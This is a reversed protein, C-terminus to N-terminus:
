FGRFPLLCTRELAKANDAILKLRDALPGETVELSGEPTATTSGGLLADQQAEATQATTPAVTQIAQIDRLYAERVLPDTSAAKAQLQAVFTRAEAATVSAAAARAFVPAIKQDLVGQLVAADVQYDKEKCTRTGLADKLSRVAAEATTAAGKITVWAAEYDAANELLQQGNTSPNSTTTEIVDETSVGYPSPGSADLYPYRGQGSSGGALGATASSLSASGLIQSAFNVTNMVTGINSLIGNIQASVNGMEVVKDSNLGLAKDLSAKITSGPTQITGPTGDKKVCPDGPNTGNPTLPEQSKLDPSTPASTNASSPGQSELDGLTQADNNTSAPGQGELDPTTASAGSGCWSLFGGGWALEQLRAATKEQVLSSLKAQARMHLVYPNNQPQTTLALWAGVGGQSWDGALFAEPNRSFQPLTNRNSAFFGALSTEEYYNRQLSSRIATAFPSNSNKGFQIFFSNAQTDGLRQTHGLVDQVFQSQGTGSTKGNVFDLVGATISRILNGSTVFAIPELVYKNIQLALNSAATSVTSGATIANKLSSWFTNKYNAGDFVPMGGARVPSPAM